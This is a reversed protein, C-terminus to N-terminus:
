GLWGRKADSAVSELAALMPHRAVGSPSSRQVEAFVEARRQVEDLAADWSERPLSAFLSGTLHEREATFAAVGPALIKFINSRIM